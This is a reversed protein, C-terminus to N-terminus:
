GHRKTLLDYVEQTTKGKIKLFDVEGIDEAVLVRQDRWDPRVPSVRLELAKLHSAAISGNLIANQVAAIASEEKYAVCYVDWTIITNMLCMTPQVPKKDAM